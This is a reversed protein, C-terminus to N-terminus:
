FVTINNLPIIKFYSYPYRENLSIQGSKITIMQGSGSTAGYVNVNYSNGITLSPVFFDMTQIEESTEDFRSFSVEDSLDFNSGDLVSTGVIKAKFYQASSSADDVYGTFSFRYKTSIAKFTTQFNVNIKLFSTSTFQKSYATTAIIENQAERGLLQWNNGNFICASKLENNWVIASSDITNNLSIMAEITQVNKLHMPVELDLSFVDMNVLNTSGQNINLLTGIDIQSQNHLDSASWSDLMKLRFSALNNDQNLELGWTFKTNSGQQHNMINTIQQARSQSHIVVDNQYVSITNNPTLELKIIDNQALTSGTDGLVLVSVNPQLLAVLENTERLEVIGFFFAIGFGTPATQIKFETFQSETNGVASMTQSSYLVHRDPDTGSVLTNNESFTFYEYPSETSWPVDESMIISRCHISGNNVVFDGNETFIHQTDDDHTIELNNNNGDSLEINSHKAELDEVELKHKVRVVPEFFTARKSYGLSSTM